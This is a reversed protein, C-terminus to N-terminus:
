DDNIAFRRLAGEVLLWGPLNSTWEFSWSFSLWTEGHVQAPNVNRGRRGNPQVTGESVYVKPRDGRELAGDPIEVLVDTTTARRPIRAGSVRALTTTGSRRVSVAGDGFHARLGVVFAESM